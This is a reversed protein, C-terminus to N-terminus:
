LFKEMMRYLIKQEAPNLAGKQNSSIFHRRFSEAAAISDNISYGIIRLATNSRFGAPLQLSTTDAWWYGFGKEALLKWPFHVNPDVKRGPAIDSHGIFNAAPIQHTKKLHALLGLLVNIQATTFSDKGNNDIEIGISASNIDTINGWKSKGAHWARLYDNLQQHLTGDKCLVYHASVQSNTNTFTQLTKQCSEQATHHIIVFSPRRLGFHVTGVWHLPQKMSDALLPLHPIARLQASWQKAQQKYVKNTARYANRPLCSILLVVMGVFLIIKHM